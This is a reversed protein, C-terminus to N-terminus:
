NRKSLWRIVAPVILLAVVVAIALLTLVSM